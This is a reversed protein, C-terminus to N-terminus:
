QAVEGHSFEERWAKARWSEMQAAVFAEPSSAAEAVELLKRIRPL